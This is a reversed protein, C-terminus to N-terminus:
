CVPNENKTVYSGLGGIIAGVSQYSVEASCMSELLVSFVLTLRSFM